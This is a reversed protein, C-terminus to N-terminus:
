TRRRRNALWTFLSTFVAIGLIGGLFIIVFLNVYGRYPDLTSPETQGDIIERMIPFTDVHHTANLIKETNPGMGALIVESSTHGGTSWSTAIESARAIRKSKKTEFDDIDSPLAYKLTSNLSPVIKFHQFSFLHYAKIVSPSIRKEFPSCKDHLLSLGHKSIKYM